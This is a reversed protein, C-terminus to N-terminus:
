SKVLNYIIQCWLSGNCGFNELFIHLKRSFTGLECCWMHYAHLKTLGILQAHHCIIVSRHRTKDPSVINACQFFDNVPRRTFDVTCLSLFATASPATATFSACITTQLNHRAAYRASCIYASSCQRQENQKSTVTHQKQITNNQYNGITVQLYQQKGYSCLM